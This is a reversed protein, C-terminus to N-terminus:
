NAARSFRGGQAIHSFSQQLQNRRPGTKFVDFKGNLLEGQFGAAIRCGRIRALRSAFWAFRGDPPEHTMRRQFCDIGVNSRSIFEKPDIWMIPLKHIILTLSENKHKHRWAQPPEAIAKTSDSRRDRAQWHFSSPFKHGHTLPCSEASTKSAAALMPECIGRFAAILVAYQNPTWAHLIWHAWYQEKDEMPQHM